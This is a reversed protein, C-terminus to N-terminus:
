HLSNAIALEAGPASAEMGAEISSRVTHSTAGCSQCTNPFGRAVRASYFKTIEELERPTARDILQEIPVGLAFEEKAEALRAVRIAENRVSQLLYEGTEAAATLQKLRATVVEETLENREDVVLGLAEIVPQTLALRTQEGNIQLSNVEHRRISMEEKTGQSDPLQKALQDAGQFVLSIEWYGLIKTVLLRVLEGNVEEGIAEWFKGEEALQAHSYDYEFLMTVSASHIAPPQMLLGRAIRPNMRWDIKMEVNIGPVNGSHEGAPDWFSRNVVGVWQEVDMFDHNKYVTQGQLMSASEELVGPRSYDLWYGPIVSASLARFVPYIYDGEVPKLAQVTDFSLGDTAGLGQASDFHAGEAPGGFEKVAVGGVWQSGVIPLLMTVKGRRQEQSIVEIRNKM